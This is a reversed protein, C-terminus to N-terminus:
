APLKVEASTHSLENVTRVAEDLDSYNLSHHDCAEVFNALTRFGRELLLRYNPSQKVLFMFANARDIRDCTLHAGANHKLSIALFPQASVDAKQIADLPARVYTVRGKVTGEYQRNAAFQPYRSAILDISENKLSIPRPHPQLLGNRPDIIAVEDSLLRWGNAILAAALTSKGAGSVGPMVVARGEREIVAAHILLYRVVRRGICWNIASEVMPLGLNRPLPKFPAQQDIYVQVHNQIWARSLASPKLEIRFDSLASRSEFPYGEYLALFEQAVKIDQIKVGVSFPGIQLVVGDEVIRRLLVPDLSTGSDM